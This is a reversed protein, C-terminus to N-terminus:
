KSEAHWEKPEEPGRGNAGAVILADLAIAGEGRPYVVVPNIDIEEIEPCSRILTGLDFLIQAAAEVDLPPSGRFGRFLDSCQLSGLERVIEQIPLCTPLLRVDRIAEALVGGFGALLVPGWEPDNRAGFILEVGSKGMREVLVGDLRLGPKNKEVNRHLALWGEALASENEISLIVGGADSKHPLDVSQAKLVVPFGIGHAIRIAEDLRRALGGQPVPIGSDKLLEKARHEPLVGQAVPPKFRSPADGANLLQQRGLATVRALARLAREPSPFCPVGSERLERIGAADFPAGEDLAAFIVPKSPQLTKIADLIPPLKLATTAPDTLIIGLVVSGFQEDELVAPLTRRYLDPDVLGQATLDLPNSPPIFAPLADRLAQEAVPSLGPLELGIKECLDLTLAKFAGSETFMATGKRPLRRIRVLIQSVDVLEELSEVHLVGAHTVLARMVQYDGALAGTHTAASERAASSSGPHLLVIFKGKERARRALELFQKPKRFQEVVLAMVRTGADEILYELFDEVGHSAENGTSVSYTLTIGHHRMNVAIVAALAGSQSLIAVGPSGSQAQPPTVVFTLPIADIYNVMGLCNPGEIIMGHESALRALEHQAAKGTKGSEAFGASFVILSGIEKQACARAAELVASGPIALVACDVAAPLEDIAGLCQQGHIVPRKPNVLHLDGSYAANRLNLLVFQGLSGPTSSAGVLAISRPRLM